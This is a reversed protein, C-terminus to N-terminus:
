LRPQYTGLAGPRGVHPTGATGPTHRRGAPRRRHRRCGRAKLSLEVAGAKVAAVATAINGYGTLMVIRTDPRVDRLVAVVDLGSGDALRLNVLQCLGPIRARPPWAPPSRRPPWWRFVGGSWRAPWAIVFPDDDVLILSRDALGAILSDANSHLDEAVPSM